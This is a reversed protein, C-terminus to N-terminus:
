NENLESNWTNYKETSSNGNSENQTNYNDPSITYQKM